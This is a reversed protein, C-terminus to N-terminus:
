FAISNPDWGMGCPQPDNDLDNITKMDAASLEFKYLDTNAIIRAQHTSKPITIIGRQLEWRLVIQATSKSYKQAIKKLVPDDLYKGGTGGLPSWAEVAIGHKECYAQLAQQSHHPHLEIQNVAPVIKADLMLKDLNAAVFNSVGISRARGSKYIEELVQWSEKNKGTVPWHILYLDVYDMQLNNLSTEFGQMQTGKTMQDIPLKTTVFLEKRNIGSQRVALGVSKENRYAAATDIHRYGAEIAWRVANVTDDGDRVQFVGFGLYPIEVGNNLKKTTKIDVNDEQVLYHNIKDCAIALINTRFLLTLLRSRDLTRIASIRMEESRGM